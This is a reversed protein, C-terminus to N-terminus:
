FQKKEISFVLEELVKGRDISASLCAGTKDILMNNRTVTDNAFVLDCQSGEGMRLAAAIQQEPSYCTTTKFSVLFIDPREKKIGAIIKKSPTLLMGQPGVRSKLRLAHKGSVLEGIKGDYDCMAVNMIICKMLPKKLYSQIVNEVDANTELNSQNDAMKTLVLDSNVLKKKLWRATTGFAPAAISLHNRVHHFTGGGLIVIPKTM